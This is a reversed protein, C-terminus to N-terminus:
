HIFDTRYSVSNEVTSFLERSGNENGFFHFFGDSFAKFETREMVRSVKFTNLSAFLNHVNRLNGYKVGAEVLCHGVICIHVSEGILKVFLVADSLVAEVAGRVSINGSSADLEEAALCLACLNYGAM